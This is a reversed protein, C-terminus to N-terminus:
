KEMRVLAQAFVEFLDERRRNYRVEAEKLFLHLKTARVPLFQKIWPSAFAWFRGPDTLSVPKLRRKTKAPRPETHVQRLGLKELVVQGKRVPFYIFANLNDKLTLTNPAPLSEEDLTMEM